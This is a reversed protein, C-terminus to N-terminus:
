RPAHFTQGEVGPAVHQHAHRTTASLPLNRTACLSETASPVEATVTARGVPTAFRDPPSQASRAGADVQPGKNLGAAEIQPNAPDDFKAWAASGTATYAIRRRCGIGSHSNIAQNRPQSKRSAVASHGCMLVATALGANTSAAVCGPEIGAISMTPDIIVATTATAM